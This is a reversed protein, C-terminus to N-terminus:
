KGEFIENILTYSVAIVLFVIIFKNLSDMQIGMIFFYLVLGLIVSIVIPILPNAM